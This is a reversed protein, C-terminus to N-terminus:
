ELFSCNQCIPLPFYSYHLLNRTRRYEANNWIEQVSSQHISGFTERSLYDNCCLVATGTVDFSLAKYQNCRYLQSSKLKNGPLLGGRNMKTHAHFQDFYEIQAYEPYNRNITKLTDILSPLPEPTHQSIVFKEVGAEVLALFREITLLVGNTFLQISAHPLRNKAYRVFTELRNDMLPEGYFHPSISGSYNPYFDATSDIIKYFTADDMYSAPRGITSNPCYSCKMNCVTTTEIGINQFVPTDDDLLPLLNSCTISSSHHAISDIIESNVRSEDASLAVESRSVLNHLLALTIALYLDSATTDALNQFITAQSHLGTKATSEEKPSNPVYFVIRSQAVANQAMEPIDTIVYEMNASLAAADNSTQVANNAIICNVRLSELKEELFPIDAVIFFCIQHLRHRPMTRLLAVVDLRSAFIGIKISCSTKTLDAFVQMTEATPLTQRNCAPLKHPSRYITHPAELCHSIHNGHRLYRQFGPPIQMFSCGATYLIFSALRECIEAVNKLNNHIHPIGDAQQWNKIARRTFLGAVGQAFVPPMPELYQGYGLIRSVIEFHEVLKDESCDLLNGFIDIDPHETSLNLLTDFWAEDAFWHDDHLLIFHDYQKAPITRLLADFGALDFGLNLRNLFFDPKLPQIYAKFDDSSGNCVIALDFRGRNAKFSHNFCYRILNPWTAESTAICVITHNNQLSM